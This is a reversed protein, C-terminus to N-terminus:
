VSNIDLVKVPNINIVDTAHFRTFTAKRRDNTDVHGHILYRPEVVRLLVRFSKFGRHAYDPLDHIGQPPSHTVIIDIPKRYIARYLLLRPLMSLVISSMDLQTYQAPDRSYRISGEIGVVGLGELRVIQRHLDIGGPRGPEYDTDHNGRVYYLPRNLVTAIFDLYPAPMDGCSIIATVDAFSRRLYDGDELQSLVNDSITLIRM